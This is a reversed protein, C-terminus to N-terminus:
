PEVSAGCPAIKATFQTNLPVTFGAQLDVYDGGHFTTTTNPMLTADSEVHHDAEYLGASLGNGTVYEAYPCSVCTILIQYSNSAAFCVTSNLIDIQENLQNLIDVADEVSEINNGFSSAFDLAEQLNNLGPVGDNVGAILDAIPTCPQVDPFLVDLTPCLGNAITLISNISDLDYTFATVTVVDEVNLLTADFSGDSNIDTISGNVEVVYNNDPLSGNPLNPQVYTANDTGDICATYNLGYTPANNPIEIFDISADCPFSCDKILVDYSNSVAFDFSVILSASNLTQILLELSEVSYGLSDIMELVEEFDNFGM